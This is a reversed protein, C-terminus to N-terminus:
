KVLRLLTTNQSLAQAGADGVENGDLNLSTLTTNQSLAQAGADGVNNGYLNL